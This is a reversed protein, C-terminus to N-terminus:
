EDDDEDAPFEEALKKMAAIREEIAKADDDDIDVEDLMKGFAAEREEQKEDIV